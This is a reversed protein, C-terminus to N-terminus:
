KDTNNKMLHHKIKNVIRKPTLDVTYVAFVKKHKKRAEYEILGIIESEVNERIKEANWGKRKLRKELEAPECRLVIVADVIRSPLLHSLHSDIIIPKNFYKEQKLEKKLFKEMKGFDAVYTKRKRDYSSYLKRRRIESNLEIVVFGKKKLIKAVSSKGTGPTGTLVIIFSKKTKDLWRM